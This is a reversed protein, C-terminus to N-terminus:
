TYPVLEGHRRRLSYLISAEHLHGLSTLDSVVTQDPMGDSGVNQLVVETDAKLVIESGEGQKPRGNVNHVRVQVVDESRSLLEAPAWTLKEDPIYVLSGAM